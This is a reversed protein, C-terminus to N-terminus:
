RHDQGLPRALQEDSQGPCRRGAAQAIKTGAPDDGTQAALTEFVPTGCDQGQPDLHIAWNEPLVDWDPPWPYHNVPGRPPIRQALNLIRADTLDVSGVSTYKCFTAGEFGVRGHFRAETFSAHGRFTAGDFWVGGHFTAGHFYVLSLTAPSFVAEGHFTARDFRATGEFTAGSFQAVGYFTADTFSAAMVRGRLAFDILTAGTLDISIEDWAQPAVVNVNDALIRQATLRVQLEGYADSSSGFTVSTSVALLAEPRAAPPRDVVATPPTYSMRLYACIVNVVTQRHDPNNQGLRELAYLGGLRVAAKDNGLQDVAKVYLDTIRREAADHETAAAVRDDHIQARQDVAERHAQDRENLWQRRLALLLAVAGGTGAGVSLGTKIADMRARAEDAGQLGHTQALLWWTSALIAMGVAVVGIVTWWWAVPRLPRRPSTV